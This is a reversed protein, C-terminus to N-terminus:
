NKGYENLNENSNDLYGAVREWAGGAMDYVGTINRTTSSLIGNATSYNHSADYSYNGEDGSSKPGQGTYLNYWHSNNVLSGTGNTMPVSGCKSYCLYAVAGLESNKILHSNVGSKFWFKIKFNYSYGYKKKM